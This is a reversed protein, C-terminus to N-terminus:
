GEFYFCLHQLLQFIKKKQDKQDLLGIIIYFIFGLSPFFIPYLQVHQIQAINVWGLTNSSCPMNACCM